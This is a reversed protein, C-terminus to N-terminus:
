VTVLWKADSQIHSRGISKTLLWKTRGGESLLGLPYGTESFEVMSFPGKEVIRGMFFTLGKVSERHKVCCIQLDRRKGTPGKETTEGECQFRPPDKTFDWGWKLETRKITRSVHLNFPKGYSLHYFPAMRWSGGSQSWVLLWDAPSYTQITSVVQSSRIGHSVWDPSM